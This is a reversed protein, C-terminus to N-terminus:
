IKLIFTDQKLPLTPAFPCVDFNNFSFYRLHYSHNADSERHYKIGHLVYLDQFNPAKNSM